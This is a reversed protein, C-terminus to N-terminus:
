IDVKVKKAVDAERAGIGGGKLGYGSAAAGGEGKNVNSVDALPARPSQGEGAAGQGTGAGPYPRKVGAHVNANLGVAPGPPRYSTRNALPSNAAGGPLGIRRGPEAAPNVFNPAHVPQQQPRAGAQVNNQPTNPNNGGPGPNSVHPPRSPATQQNVVNRTVPRSANHNVGPTKRISPSEVAPNFRPLTSVTTPPPPQDAPLLEAARPHTFGIQPMTGAESGQQPAPHHQHYTQAAAVAARTANHQHNPPQLEETQEPKPPTSNHSSSQTNRPALNHHQLAPSTVTSSLNPLSVSRDSPKQQATAHTQAHPQGQQSTPRHTQNPAVAPPPMRGDTKNPLVNNASPMSAHRQNSQAGQQMIQPPHSGMQDSSRQQASQNTTQPQKAAEANDHLEVEDPNGSHGDALEVEDFLNGGFEDEHETSMRRINQGTSVADTRESRGDNGTDAISERKVPVYDSHRHLNEADWKSPAYKVKTVKGLYEKDYLCNGLVNGFNRLARKLADTAGEKKAKEFAAAKSKCNEIHGYGVDQM